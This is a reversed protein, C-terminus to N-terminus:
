KENNKKAELKFYVLVSSNDVERLEGVIKPLTKSEKLLSHLLNNAAKFGDKFGYIWDVQKYKITVLALNFYKPSIEVKEVTVYFPSFGYKRQTKNKLDEDILKQFDKKLEDMDYEYSLIMKLYPEAEKINADLVTLRQSLSKHTNRAENGRVNKYNIFFKVSFFLVMLVSLFVMAIIAVAKRRSKLSNITM